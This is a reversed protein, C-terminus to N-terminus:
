PAETCPSDLPVWGPCESVASSGREPLGLTAPKRCLRFAPWRPKTPPASSSPHPYYREHIPGPAEPSEYLPATARAAPQKFARVAQALLSSVLFPKKQYHLLSKAIHLIQSKPPSTIRGSEVGRAPGTKQRRLATGLHRAMGRPLLPRLIRASAGAEM